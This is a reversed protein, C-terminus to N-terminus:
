GPDVQFYLDGVRFIESPSPDILGDAEPARWQRRRKDYVELGGRADLQVGRRTARLIAVSGRTRGNVAGDGHIGLRADRYFGSRGGSATRLEVASARKLGKLSGATSVHSGVPFRRPTLYGALVFLGAFVGVTPWFWAGNCSLWSRATVSWAIATSGTQDAFLPDTSSIRLAAGDPSQDAACYPVELCLTVPGGPIVMAETLPTLTEGQQLLLTSECGESLRQPELRLETGDLGQSGSLDVEACTQKPAAGATVTGFDLTEGVSLVVPERIPITHVDSTVTGTAAQAVMQWTVSQPQHYTRTYTRGQTPDQTFLDTTVRDGNEKLSYRGQPAQLIRDASPGGRVLRAEGTCARGVFCITPFDSLDWTLQFSLDLPLASELEMSLREQPGLELQPTFTVQVEGETTPLTVQANVQGDERPQGSFDTVEGADDTVHFVGGDLPRLQDDEDTVSGTMTINEGPAYPGPPPAISIQLNERAPPESPSNGGDDPGTIGQADDSINGTFNESPHETPACTSVGAGVITLTTEAIKETTGVEPDYKFVDTEYGPGAFLYFQGGWTAFAFNGRQFNAGEVAEVYGISADQPSISAIHFPTGEFAGYLDGKSNGTLEARGTIQDYQGVVSITMRELDLKGLQYGIGGIETSSIYLDDQGSSNLTFGMGFKRFGHQGPVLNTKTCSANRTDVQFLHGYEFIVYAMGSRSVAMSYPRGRNRDDCELKGILRFTQTLPDFRHLGRDGTMVYIYKASVGCDDQATVTPLLTLLVVGVMREEGEATHCWGSGLIVYQPTGPDARM